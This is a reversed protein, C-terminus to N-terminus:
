KVLDDNFFERKGPGYLDRMLQADARDIDVLEDKLNQTLYINTIWSCKFAYTLGNAAVGDPIDIVKCSLNYKHRTSLARIIRSPRNLSYIRYYYIRGNDDKFIVLKEQKHVCTLRLNAKHAPEGEPISPVGVHIGESDVVEQDGDWLILDIGDSYKGNYTYSFGPRRRAVPNKINATKIITDLDYANDNDDYRDFSTYSKIYRKM